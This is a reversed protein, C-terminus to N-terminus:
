SAGFLGWCRGAGCCMILIRSGLVILKLRRQSTRWDDCPCYVVKDKFCGRDAYLELEEAVNHHLTYFEDAGRSTADNLESVKNPM